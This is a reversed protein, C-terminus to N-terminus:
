LEGKVKIFGNLAAVSICYTFIGMAGKVANEVSVYFARLLRYSILIILILEFTLIIAKIKMIWYRM